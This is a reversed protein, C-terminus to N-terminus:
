DCTVEADSDSVMKVSFEGKICHVDRDLSRMFPYDNESIKFEGKQNCEKNPCNMPMTYKERAM